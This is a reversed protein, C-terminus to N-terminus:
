YIWFRKPFLCIDSGRLAFYNYLYMYHFYCILIYNPENQVLISNYWKRIYHELLTCRLNLNVQQLEQLKATKTDLETRQQRGAMDTQQLQGMKDRIEEQLNEVHHDLESIQPFIIM